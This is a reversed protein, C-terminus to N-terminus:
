ALEHINHLGERLRWKFRRIDSWLTSLSFCLINNRGCGVIMRLLTWLGLAVVKGSAIDKCSQRWAPMGRQLVSCFLRPSLVCGQLVGAHIPFFNRNSHEGQVEGLQNSCILQLIRTLHDSVGHDGLALWWANWNVRNLAKSLILSVIWVPIGKDWAKDLFLTASPLHEDIRRHKRFSHREELQHGEPLAEIRGLIMFAFAKYLMYNTHVYM